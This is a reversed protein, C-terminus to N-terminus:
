RASEIHPEKRTSFLSGFWIASLCIVALGVSAMQAAAFKYQGLLQTILVPLPVLNEGSFMSVSAVEAFSMGFCISWGTLLPRRWTPWDVIKILALPSAGLTRALEKKRLNTVGITPFLIRLIAPLFLMTQIMVIILFNQAFPDIWAGYALWFGVGIVLASVGAPFSLLAELTTYVLPNNRWKSLLITSLGALSITCFSTMLAIALSDRFSTLFIGNLEDLAGWSAFFGDLIFFYPIIWIFSLTIVFWSTNQQSVDARQELPTKERMLVRLLVIPLVNLLIQWLACASAGELDLIGSRLREYIATELTSVPPGGGLLLVISFSMTCFSFVQLLATAVTAGMFHGTLEKFVQFRNAGLSKALDFLREPIQSRRQSVLLAVYPVNFIVHVLIIAKWSYLIESSFGARSLFGSRGLLIIWSTAAVITPVGMPLSLFRQILPLSHRFKARGLYLGLPVGLIAACLTSFIAQSATFKATSLVVPDFLASLQGSGTFLGLVVAGMPLFLSVTLLVGLVITLAIKSM